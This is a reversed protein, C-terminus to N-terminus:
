HAQNSITAKEHYTKLNHWIERASTARKVFRLQNDEVFLAITTRAKRDDKQWQPFEEDLEEPKPMEIVHWVEERELMTQMRYKWSVYNSANLKAFSIKVHDAM